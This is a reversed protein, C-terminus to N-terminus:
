LHGPIEQRYGRVQVPRTNSPNERNPNLQSPSNRQHDLQFHRITRSRRDRPMYLPHLDTRHNNCKGLHVNIISFSNTNTDIGVEKACFNKEIMNYIHCAIWAMAKPFSCVNELLSQVFSNTFHALKSVVDNRYEVADKYMKLNDDQRFRSTSFQM